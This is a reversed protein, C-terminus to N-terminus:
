RPYGAFTIRKDVIKSVVGTFASAKGDKTLGTITTPQKAVFSENCRGEDGAQAYFEVM